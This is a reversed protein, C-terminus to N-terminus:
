HFSYDKYFILFPFPCLPDPKTNLPSNAFSSIKDTILFIRIFYRLILQIAITERYPLTITKVPLSHRTILM